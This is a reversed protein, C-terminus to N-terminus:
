SLGSAHYEKLDGPIQPGVFYLSVYGVQLSFCFFDNEFPFSFSEVPLSGENLVM